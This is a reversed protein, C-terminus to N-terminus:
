RRETDGASKKLIQGPPPTPLSSVPQQAPTAPTQAPQDQNTNVPDTVQAKGESRARRDADVSVQRGAGSGSGRPGDAVQAAEVRGQAVGQGKQRPDQQGGKFSAVGEAQGQSGAGDQDDASATSQAVNPTGRKHLATVEDTVFMTGIMSFAITLMIVLWTFGNARARLKPGNMARNHATDKAYHEILLERLKEQARLQVYKPTLGADSFAKKLEAAYAILDPESPPIKYRRLRVAQYLNVLVMVACLAASALMVRLAVSLFTVELPPLRELIFAFLPGAFAFTAAFFPVTRAVHEDVELEREFSSKLVEELYEDAHSM